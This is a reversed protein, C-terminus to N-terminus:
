EFLSCTTTKTNTPKCTTFSISLEHTNVTGKRLPSLVFDFSYHVSLQQRIKFSALVLFADTNRFGLGLGFQNRLDVLLNMDLAAPGAPPIKLLFSPLITVSPRISYRIGGNLITHFRFTSEKGIPDWKSPILNQAVWGLYYNEGNWWAGFSADPAIFSSSSTVAPDPYITTANEANYGLQVFGAYIGLSLRTNPTFNFHSAYAANLRTSSFPGINDVEVRGGVGHRASLMEKRQLNLPIAMTLFGSSPAGQFGLWQLRYLSHMDLCNKIGAHAPNLSFQHAAWQTYQPLQQAVSTSLFFVRLAFTTVISILRRNM